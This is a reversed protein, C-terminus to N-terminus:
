SQVCTNAVTKRRSAKRGEVMSSYRTDGSILGTGSGRPRTDRRTPCDAIRMGDRTRVKGCDIVAESRLRSTAGRKVVVNIGSLALRKQFKSGFSELSM